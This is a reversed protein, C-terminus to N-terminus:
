EVVLVGSTLSGSILRGLDAVAPADLGLLESTAFWGSFFAPCGLSKEGQEGGGVTILGGADVSVDYALLCRAVERGDAAGNNYAAFTGPTATLEGLVTGKVHTAPGVLKVTQQLAEEPRYFPILGANSYVNTPQTPM